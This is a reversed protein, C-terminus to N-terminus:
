VGKYLDIRCNEFITNEAYQSRMELIAGNTSRMQAETNGLKWLLRERRRGLEESERLLAHLRVQHKNNNYRWCEILYHYIYLKKPNCGDVPIDSCCTPVIVSWHKRDKCDSVTFEGSKIMQAKKQVVSYAYDNNALYVNMAMIAPHNNPICHRTVGASKHKRVASKVKTKSGKRILFWQYARYWRENMKKVIDNMGRCTQRLALLDQVAIQEGIISWVDRGLFAM